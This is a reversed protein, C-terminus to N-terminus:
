PHTEPLRRRPQIEQPQGLHPSSRASRPWRTMATAIPGSLNNRRAPRIARPSGGRSSEAPSTALSRWIPTRVMMTVPSEATVAVAIARLIPMSPVTQGGSRRASANLPSWNPTNARTTGSCFDLSTSASCRWPWTTPMHPSPAFSAGALRHERQDVRVRDRHKGVDVLALRPFDPDALRGLDDQTRQGALANGAAYRTDLGLSNCRTMPIYACKHRSRQWLTVIFSTLLSRRKLSFNGSLTTGLVLLRWDFTRRELRLRGAEVFYYRQSDRWLVENRALSRRELTQEDLGLM